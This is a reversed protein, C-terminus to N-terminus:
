EESLTLLRKALELRARNCRSKITGLPARLLRAIEELRLGQIERLLIVERNLATLQQLARYVLRKRSDASWQQEPTNERSPLEGIEDLTVTGGASRARRRRLHDISANRAIRIMWPLFMGEDACSHLNQFMRVFTEQALDRADEVNGTYHYAIGYVRSQYMRVLAEWALADGAKCRALLLSLNMGIEHSGGGSTSAM